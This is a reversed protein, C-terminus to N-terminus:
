RGAQGLRGQTGGNHELGCELQFPEELKEGALQGRHHGVIEDDIHVFLHIEDPATAFLGRVAQAVAEKELIAVEAFREYCATM